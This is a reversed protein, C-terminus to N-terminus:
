RSAPTSDIDSEELCAHHFPRDRSAVWRYTYNLFMAKRTRESTNDRRRHFCRADFLVLSGMPVLIATANLPDQDVPRMTLDLHSGAVVELAGKDPDDVDTLFVGVKIALRPQLGPMLRMDRGQVGGDRHWRRGSTPPRPSHLDLHLHNIYINASLAATVVELLLEHDIVDIFEPHMELCSLLHLEGGDSRDAWRAAVHDAASHLRSTMASSFPPLVAYGHVDLAILAKIGEATLDAISKIASGSLV